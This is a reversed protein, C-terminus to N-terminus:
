QKAAKNWTMSLLLAAVATSAIIAIFVANWGYNDALFGGGFGSIATGMYGLTGTFGNATSAAKKSAFDAAAVGIL